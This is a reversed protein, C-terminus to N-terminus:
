EDITFNLPLECLYTQQYDGSFGMTLSYILLLIKEWSYRDLPTFSSQPLMGDSIIRPLASTGM